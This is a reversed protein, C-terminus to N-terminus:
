EPCPSSPAVRAWGRGSTQHMQQYASCDLLGNRTVLATVQFPRGQNDVDMSGVNGDAIFEVRFTYECYKERTVASLRFTVQEDRKLTYKRSAFYNGTLQPLPDDDVVTSEQAFVPDRDLDYGIQVTEATGQPANDFLAATLPERCRPRIAIDTIRVEKGRNGELELEVTSVGSEVGGYSRMIEQTSKEYAAFDANIDSLTQASVPGPFVWTNDNERPVPTVKNVKIPDGVPATPGSGATASSTPTPKDEGGLGLWKVGASTGVGGVVAVVISIM